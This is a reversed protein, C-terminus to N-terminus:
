ESIWDGRTEVCPTELRIQIENMGKKVQKSSTGGAVGENDCRRCILATFNLFVRLRQKGPANLRGGRRARVAKVYTGLINRMRRGIVLTRGRIIEPMFAGGGGGGHAGRWHVPLRSDEGRVAFDGEKRRLGTPARIWAWGVPFLFRRRDGGGGLACGAFSPRWEVFNKEGYEYDAWRARAGFERWLDV